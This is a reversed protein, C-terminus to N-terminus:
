SKLMDLMGIIENIGFPKAICIHNGKGATEDILERQDNGSIMIIPLKPWMRRIRRFATLGEGNPMRIDLYAVDIDQSSLTRLAQTGNEACYVKHGNMTLVDYLLERINTENDAVLISLSEM